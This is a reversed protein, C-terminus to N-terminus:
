SFTNAECLQRLNPFVVGGSSGKKRSVLGEFLMLIFSCSLVQFFIEAVGETQSIKLNLCCLNHSLSAFIGTPSLPVSDPNNKAFFKM